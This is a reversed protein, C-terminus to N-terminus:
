VLVGSDAAQLMFESRKLTWQLSRGRGVDSDVVVCRRRSELLFISRDTEDERGDVRETVTGRLEAEVDRKVVNRFQCRGGRVGKKGPHSGEQGHQGEPLRNQNMGEQRGGTDRDVVVQLVVRAGQMELRVGEAGVRRVRGM